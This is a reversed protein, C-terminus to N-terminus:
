ITLYNIIFNYICFVSVFIFILWALIYFYKNYILNGMKNRDHSLLLIMIGNIPITIATVMAAIRYIDLQNILNFYSPLLGYLGMIIITIITIKKQINNNDINLKGFADAVVLGVINSTGNLSTIAAGFLGFGFIVKAYKGSIPELMNAFDSASNPVSQTKGLTEASAVMIMGVILVLFITSIIHDTRCGTTIDEETYNNQKIIYQHIVGQQSSVTLFISLASLCAGGNSFDPLLGKIFANVNFGSIIITVLFSIFMVVMFFISAKQLLFYTRKSLTVIIAIIMFIIGFILINGNFIVNMALATGLTNSSTYVILPIAITICALFALIKGYKERIENGYTTKTKYGVRTGIDLFVFRDLLIFWLIWVCSYGYKAGAIGSMLIAAPGFVSTATLFAPGISSLKKNRKINLKMIQRMYVYEIIDFVAYTYLLNHIM